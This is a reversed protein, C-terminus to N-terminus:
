EIPELVVYYVYRANEANINFRYVMENAGEIVTDENTTPDVRHWIVKVNGDYSGSRVATLVIETGAYVAEQGEVNSSITVGLTSKWRAYLSINGDAEVIDGTKYETGTGDPETNWGLFEYGPRTPTQLVSQANSGVSISDDNFQYGIPMNNVTKKNEDNVNVYYTISAKAAKNRVAGDVHWNSQWKQVYWHIYQTEPDFDPILEQIQEVTPLMALSDTISNQLYIGEIPNDAKIDVNWKATSVTNSIKIEKTYEATQFNGPEDPITGDLRIFFRAEKPGNNFIAYLTTKGEPVVFTTGAPYVENYSNVQVNNVKAWGLFTCNSKQGAYEPLTIIEGAGAIIAVPAAKSGGNANFVVRNSAQNNVTKLSFLENNGNLNRNNARKDQAWGGFGKTANNGYNDLAYQAGDTIRYSGGLDIIYVRAESDSLKVSEGEIALYQGNASRVTHWGGGVNTITWSTIQKEDSGITGDHYVEAAVSDLLGDGLFEGLLAIGQSTVLAGSGNIHAPGILDSEAKLTLWTRNNKGNQETGFGDDLKENTNSLAYYKDTDGTALVFKNFNSGDPRVLLRQPEGSLVLGDATINLYQGNTSVTYWDRIVHTFTWYTVDNQPVWVGNKKDSGLAKLRGGTAHSENTLFNNQQNNMIAWVGSLDQTAETAIEGPSVLRFKENNGNGYTWTGFGRGENHGFNNLAVGNAEIAYLNNGKNTLRIRQADAASVSELSLVQDLKLYTGNMAQITYYNGTVHALTWVPDEPMTPFYKGNKQSAKCATLQGDGATNADQGVVMSEATMLIYSGSLDSDAPFDPTVPIAATFSSKKGNTWAFSLERTEKDFTWSVDENGGNEAIVGEDLTYYVYVGETEGMKEPLTQETYAPEAVTLNLMYGKNPDSDASLTVEKGDADLVRSDSVFDSGKLNLDLIVEFSTGNQSFTTDEDDALAAVSVMSIMVAIALLLVTLKFCRNKKM